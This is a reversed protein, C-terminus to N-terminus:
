AGVRQRQPVLMPPQEKESAADRRDGAACIRAALLFFSGMTLLLAPEAFPGNFVARHLVLAAVAFISAAVVIVRSM